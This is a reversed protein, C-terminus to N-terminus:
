NGPLRKRYRVETVEVGIHVEQKTAGDLAWGAAEYFRRARPNDDLVWLTAELFGAARLREEAAAILRQGIGAGWSAPEVYIAYLEGASGLDSDRSPGVSAFGVVAGETEAVLVATRPRESSIWRAMNERRRETSISALAEEPFAHAYGVQWSRTHVRAIAGADEPRADRVM